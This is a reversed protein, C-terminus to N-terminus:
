NKLSWKKNVEEKCHKWGHVFASEYHFKIKEIVQENEGHIRLLGEIYGWHESAVVHENAM